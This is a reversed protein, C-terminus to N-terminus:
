RPPLDHGGHDHLRWLLRRHYRDPGQRHLRAVPPTKQRLTCDQLDKEGHNRDDMKYFSKGYGSSGRNNVALVAYGHNVLYQLLWYGVRSQGGPGGHVWVLAPVKSNASAAVPKYYIAPIELGDFSKYRVVEASALDGTNIEPNLSNTLRKLEKTEFNYAYLSNPSKSTGVTLRM